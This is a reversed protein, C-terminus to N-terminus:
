MGPLSRLRNRAYRAQGPTGFAGKERLSEVKDPETGLWEQLVTSTHEGLLPSGKKVKPPTRSLRLPSGVVKVSRGASDTVEQIFERGVVPPLESAEKLNNVPTFDVPTGEFRSGWEASTRTAVLEAVRQEAEERHKGPESMVPDSLWEPVDMIQCIREWLPLSLGVHAWGDKTQYM